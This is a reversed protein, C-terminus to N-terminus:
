GGIVGTQPIVCGAPFGKAPCHRHDDVGILLGVRLTHCTAATDRATPVWAFLRACALSCLM